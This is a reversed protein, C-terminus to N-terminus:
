CTTIRTKEFVIEVLLLKSTFPDNLERGEEVAGDGLNSCLTFQVVKILISKHNKCPVRSFTKALGIGFRKITM